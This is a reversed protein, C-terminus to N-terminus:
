DQINKELWALARRLGECTAKVRLDFLQDGSSSTDLYRKIFQANEQASLHGRKEEVDVKVGLFEAANFDIEYRLYTGNRQRASLLIKASRLLPFGIGGEMGNRVVIVGPFGARESITLMKEGYPPHFASTMIIRAGVPNLFKELTALFPRKITQRRLEVWRDVAPSLDQQRIFFGYGSSQGELDTNGQAYPVALADAVDLLNYILKPGSNRGVLHVTRFGLSQAYRALLPTTLYSHDNGDFPEAIQLSPEGTPVLRRFAPTITENMAALLGEYEQDTEYRVRLASAILGRAGDGPIDAFLFRGLRHATAKDLTQGQLLRLCIEQVFDPADACLTKVLLPSNKLTGGVPFVSDLIEEEATIGKFFLGAFFAGAEAPAVKGAKFDAAIERALNRGLPQSGKKGIGVTKIGRRIAAETADLVIAM